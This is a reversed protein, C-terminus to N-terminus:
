KQFPGKIITVNKEFDKALLDSMEAFREVHMGTLLIRKGQRTKIAIMEGLRKKGISAGRNIEIKEVNNQNVHIIRKRYKYTFIWEDPKREVSQVSMLSVTFVVMLFALQLVIVTLAVGITINTFYNNFFVIAVAITGLGFVVTLIPAIRSFVSPKFIM